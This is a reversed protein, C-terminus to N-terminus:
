CIQRFPDWGGSLNDSGNNMNTLRGIVRLPTSPFVQPWEQLLLAARSPDISFLLEYDEGDGLAAHIDGPIRCPLLSHDLEFGCGSAQALRPLDIALGDSLDMMAHPKHHEVLWQSEALRPLFDLHHGALSGGLCGTVLLLDGVRGGHRYVVRSPDIWGTAAISLMTSGSPARTTDGGIIHGGFQSLCRSMGRYMELADALQVSEALALTVLFWQPQGGMAAFDSIVRAIAKWGIRQPHTGPLYHRNEIIADTKHLQWQNDSHKTVACDDGPGCIVDQAAPALEALLSRVWQDESDCPSM